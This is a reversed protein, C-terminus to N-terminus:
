WTWGDAVVQLLARAAAQEAAKRSRGMGSGALDTGPVTAEVHFTREHDPGDSRIMGYRVSVGQEQAWAQAQLWEQLESKFDSRYDQETSVHGSFWEVVLAAAADYGHGLFVAGIVSEVLAALVNPSGVLEAAQSADAEVLVAARFAEDLGQERAVERCVRRSVLAARLRSLEGEPFDPFRQYLLEGMALGLVADGLFELREYSRARSAAIAPHTLARQRLDEPLDDFAPAVRPLEGPRSDPM